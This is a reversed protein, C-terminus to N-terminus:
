EKEYLLSEMYEIMDAASLQRDIGGQKYAEYPMGYVVSSEEDQGITTAGAKRMKTIGSAGDKGMGTLIIGITKSVLPSNAISNFLVDVSPRHSNMKESKHTKVYFRNEKQYLELHFDGPAILVQNEQLADGNQAEKVSLRSISDLRKAFMSTFYPPMHQVILVPPFQAPLEKLIYHIIQTGGTSAGIAVLKIKNSFTKSQNSKPLSNKLRSQQKKLLVNKKLDIMGYARVKEKLESLMRLLDEESGDPKTIFDAAGLNLAEMTASTGSETYSSLMIVPRPFREMIWHLFELGNKGPMELDLTVLDPNCQITQLQAEYFNKAKGVVKIDPEINLQEELFERVIHQDDVVLVKIM